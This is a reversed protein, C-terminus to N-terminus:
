RKASRFLSLRDPIEPGGKEKGRPPALACRHGDGIGTGDAAAEGIALGGLRLADIDRPGHLLM